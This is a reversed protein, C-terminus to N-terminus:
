GAAVAVQRSSGLGEIELEVVDGPRLYQPPDFGMGVGGPTGTAIIDGPLLTMFESAYSVLRRVPAIMDGTWGNQRMEGNVKCWLRLAQPDPVEDATVM